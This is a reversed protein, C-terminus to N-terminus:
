LNDLSGDESFYGAMRKLALDFEDLSRSFAIFYLGEDGGHFFPMAQLRPLRKLLYSLERKLSLPNAM